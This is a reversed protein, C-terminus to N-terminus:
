QRLRDVSSAALFAVREVEAWGVENSANLVPQQLEITEDSNDLKGGYPGFLRTEPALNYGLRFAAATLPDNVPDFNVVLVREGPQLVTDPPFSYDVANALRWTNTPAAAHYLPAPAGSINALEIFEDRSNDNTGLDPPHYMIEAIVVPGIQPGANAAGPTPTTQPVFHERGLSNVYRGFSVGPAAAGFNFGHSYGTLNTAADASFLYAADGLAGLAFSNSAGPTPNFDDETFV